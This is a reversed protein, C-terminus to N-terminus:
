LDLNVCSTWRRECQNNYRTASLDIRPLHWRRFIQIFVELHLLWETQIVQWHKSLKEATVNLWGPIHCARLCIQRLNCWSLARRLLACLSGSRMGGEKKHIGSGYYHRNNNVTSLKTARSLHLDLLTVM